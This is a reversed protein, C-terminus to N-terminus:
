VGQPADRGVLAHHAMNCSKSSPLTGRYAGGTAEQYSLKSSEKAAAFKFSEIEAGPWLWGTLTITWNRFALRWRGGSFTRIVALLNVDVAEVRCFRGVSNFVISAIL